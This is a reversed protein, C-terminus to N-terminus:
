LTGARTQERTAARGWVVQLSQGIKSRSIPNSQSHVLAVVYLGAVNRATAVRGSTDQPIHFFEHFKQSCSECPQLSTARLRRM